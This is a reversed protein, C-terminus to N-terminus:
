DWGRWLHAMPQPDHNTTTWQRGLNLRGISCTLVVERYRTPLGCRMELRISGGAVALHYRGTSGALRIAATLRPSNFDLGVPMTTLDILDLLICDIPREVIPCYFHFIDFSLHFISKAM